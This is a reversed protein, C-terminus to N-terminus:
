VHPVNVHDSAIEIPSEGRKAINDAGDVDHNNVQNSGIRSVLGELFIGKQHDDDGNVYDIYPESVM